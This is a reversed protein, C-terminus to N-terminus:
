PIVLEGSFLMAEGDAASLTLKDAPASPRKSAVLLFRRASV